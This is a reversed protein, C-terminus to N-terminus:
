PHSPNQGHHIDKASIRQSWQSMGGRLVAVARFGATGLMAAAKASRMDTRCVLLIARQKAPALETLRNPLDALPINM